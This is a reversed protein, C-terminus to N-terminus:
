LCSITCNLPTRLEHAMKNFLKLKKKSDEEFHKDELEKWQKFVEILVVKKMKKEDENM